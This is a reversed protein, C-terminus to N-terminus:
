EDTEKEEPPLEEVALVVVTGTVRLVKLMSMMAMVQQEDPLSFSLERLDRRRVKVIFPM